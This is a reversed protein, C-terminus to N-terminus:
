IWETTQLPRPPSVNPPQTAFLQAASPEGTALRESENSVSDSAASLISAHVAKFISGTVFVVTVCVFCTTNLGVQSCRLKFGM